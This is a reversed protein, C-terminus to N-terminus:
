IKPRANDFAFEPTHLGILVLGANPYTEAWRKVYPSPRLSNICTYTCFDILVAKGRLADRNLPSSELWGNAGSLDPFPGEDSLAGVAAAVIFVSGGLLALTWMLYR